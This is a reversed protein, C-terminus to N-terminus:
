VNCCAAMIPEFDKSIGLYFEKLLLVKRRIRPYKSSLKTLKDPRAFAFEAFMNFDNEFSVKNYEALFGHSYLQKSGETNTAEKLTKLKDEETKAYAFGVPNVASWSPEGFKYRFMLISSFEHHFTSSLHMSSKMHAFDSGVTIYITKDLYTGGYSVDFFKLEGLAIINTLNNHLIEPPYKELENPLLNILRQLNDITANSSEVNGPQIKWLLPIYRKSDKYLIKVKFRQEINEIKEDISLMSSLSGAVITGM